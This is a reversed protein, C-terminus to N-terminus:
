HLVTPRFSAESFRTRAMWVLFVTFDPLRIL